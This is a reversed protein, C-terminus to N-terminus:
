GPAQWAQLGRALAAHGGDGHSTPLLLLCSCGLPSSESHGRGKALNMSSAQAKCGPAPGQPMSHCASKHSQRSMPSEGRRVGGNPHCAHMYCSWARRRVGCETRPDLWALALQTRGEENVVWFVTVIPGLGVGLEGGRARGLSWCQERLLGLGLTQGWSHSRVGSLAISCSSRKGACGRKPRPTSFRSRVVEIQCKKM